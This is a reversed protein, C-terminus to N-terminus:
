FGDQLRGGTITCRLYYTSYAAGTVAVNYIISIRMPVYLYHAYVCVVCHSRAPTVTNACWVVSLNKTLPPLQIVLEGWLPLSSCNHLLGQAVRTIM